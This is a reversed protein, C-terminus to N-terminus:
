RHIPYNSAVQVYIVIEFGVRREQWFDLGKPIPLQNRKYLEKIASVYLLRGEQQGRLTAAFEALIKCNTASMQMSAQKMRKCGHANNHYDM